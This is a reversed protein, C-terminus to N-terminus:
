KLSKVKARILYSSTGGLRSLNVHDERCVEITYLGHYRLQEGIYSTAQRIQYTGCAFLVLEEMSLNPFVINSNTITTFISNRRNLNEGQVIVALFKEAFLRENIISVIQEVNTSHVFMTAFANHLAAAISFDVPCARNFYEHRFIKFDRKIRGNVAEM